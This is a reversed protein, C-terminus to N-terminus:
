KIFRICFPYEFMQGKSAAISAKIVMVIELIGLAILLPIGILVFVLAGAILGCITMTIQFNLSEKGHRDVFASQERKLLWFVLPGVIHGFGVGILGAFASLHCLMGWTHISADEPEVVPEVEPESQVDEEAM